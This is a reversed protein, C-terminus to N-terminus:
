HGQAVRRAAGPHFSWSLRSIRQCGPLHGDGRHTSPRRSNFPRLLVQCSQPRSYLSGSVLLREEHTHAAGSDIQLDILDPSFCETAHEAPGVQVIRHQLHWKGLNLPKFLSTEGLPPFPTPPSASGMKDQPPHYLRSLTHRHELVRPLHSLPLIRKVQALLSPRRSMSM